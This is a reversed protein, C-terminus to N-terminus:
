NHFLCPWFNFIKIAVLTHTFMIKLDSVFSDKGLDGSVWIGRSVRWRPIMSHKVCEYWPSVFIRFMVRVPKLRWNLLLPHLLVLLIECDYHAKWITEEGPMSTGAKNIKCHVSPTVLFARLSSKRILKKWISIFSNYMVLCFLGSPLIWSWFNNELKAFHILCLDAVLKFHKNLM